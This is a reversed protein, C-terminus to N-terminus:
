IAEGTQRARALPSSLIRSAPRDTFYAGVREAQRRGNDNLPIDMRGRFVEEKNWETEGHRVVYINM